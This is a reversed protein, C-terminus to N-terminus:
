ILKDRRKRSAALNSKRAKVHLYKNEILIFRGMLDGAVKLRRYFDWVGRMLNRDLGDM